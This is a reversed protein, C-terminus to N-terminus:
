EETDEGRRKLFWNRVMACHYCFTVVIVLVIIGVVSGVVIFFIQNGFLSDGESGPTSEQNCQLESCNCFKSGTVNLGRNLLHELGDVAISTFQFNLTFNVHGEKQKTCPFNITFATPPTYSLSLSLTCYTSSVLIIKYDFAMDTCCVVLVVKEMILKTALQRAVFPKLLFNDVVLPTHTIM